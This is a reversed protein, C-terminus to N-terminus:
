AKLAETSLSTPRYDELWKRATFKADATENPDQLIEHCALANRTEWRAKEASQMSAAEDIKAGYDKAWDLILGLSRPAPARGPLKGLANKDLNKLQMWVRTLFQDVYDPGVAAIVRYAFLQDSKRRPSIHEHAFEMHKFAQQMELVESFIRDAAQKERESLPAAPKPVPVQEIPKQGDRRPTKPHSQSASHRGVPSSTRQSKSQLPLLTLPPQVTNTERCQVSKALSQVSLQVLPRLAAIRRRRELAEAETEARKQHSQRAPPIGSEQLITDIRDSHVERHAAVIDALSAKKLALEFDFKAELAKKKEEPWDEIFRDVHAPIDTSYRFEEGRACEIPRKKPVDGRLYLRREGEDHTGNRWLGRAAGLRWTRYCNAVDMGMRQAIHEMHMEDGNDLTAYPSRHGWGMTANIMESWMRQIPTTGEKDKHWRHQGPPIPDFGVPSGISKVLKYVDSLKPKSQEEGEPM